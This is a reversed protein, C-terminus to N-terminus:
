PGAGQVGLMGILDAWCDEISYAELDPVMGQITRMVRNSVDAYLEDNSSFFAVNHEPCAGNRVKKDVSLPDAEM